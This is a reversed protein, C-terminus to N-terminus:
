RKGGLLIPLCGRCLEYRAVVKNGEVQEVRTIREGYPVERRCGSCIRYTRSAGGAGGSVRVSVAGHSSVSDNIYRSTRRVARRDSGRDGQPVAEKAPTFIDDAQTASSREGSTAVRETEDM